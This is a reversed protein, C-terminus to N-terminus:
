VIKLTRRMGFHTMNEQNLCYSWDTPDIQASIRHKLTGFLFRVIQGDLILNKLPSFLRDCSMEVLLVSRQGFGYHFSIFWTRKAPQM